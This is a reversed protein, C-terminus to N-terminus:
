VPSAIGDAAVRGGIFANATRRDRAVNRKLDMTPYHIILIWGECRHRAKRHDRIHLGSAGFPDLLAVNLGYARYRRSSKSSSPMATAKFSRPGNRKWPAHAKSPRAVNEGDLDCLIVRTFPAQSQASPSRTPSGDIIKGRLRTYSSVRGPERLSRCIRCWGAPRSRGPKLYRARVARTAELYRQLYYHKDKAWSGVCQVPLHDDPAPATCNGNPKTEGGHECDSM